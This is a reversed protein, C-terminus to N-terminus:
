ALVEELFSKMAIWSRREAAPNYVIGMEPNKSGPNTFGHQTHGYAHLQWDAEAETFERAIALVHEPTAMPDDYGHLMLIKATVPRQRALNSPHLLAHFSVVGKLGPPGSRALDLVCLGGFCFGIAAIRDSNVLPHEKAAALAASIRRQLLARDDMFPQMLRASEDTSTSRVGKGYLDLAFGVYGLQALNGAKEREFDSQGGWAHSVLVCPRKSKNSEDYAVYAECTLGGDTYNLYETHM